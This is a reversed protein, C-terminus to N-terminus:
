NRIMDEGGCKAELGSHEPKGQIENAAENLNRKWDRVIPTVLTSDESLTKIIHQGM